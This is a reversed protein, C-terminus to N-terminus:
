PKDYIETDEPNLINVYQESDPTENTPEDNNEIIVSENEDVTKKVDDITKKMHKDAKVQVSIDSSSRVAKVLSNEAKKLEEDDNEAKKNELSQKYEKSTKDVGFNPADYEDDIAEAASMIVEGPADIQNQRKAEAKAKLEDLHNVPKEVKNTDDSFYIDYWVLFVYVTWVRRSNDEKCSYHEDLWAILADTNFFKQATKSQFKENVINYYKEDRLWVRTPVPFGLKEKEATAEPMHRVAAKRM